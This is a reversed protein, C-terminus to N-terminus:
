KKKCTGICFFPPSFLMVGLEVGAGQEGDFKGGYTLAINTYV